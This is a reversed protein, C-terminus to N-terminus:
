TDWKIIEEGLEEVIGRALGSDLGDVTLSYWSVLCKTAIYDKETGGHAVLAEMAKDRAVTCGELCVQNTPSKILEPFRQRVDDWGILDLSLARQLARCTEESGSQQFMGLYLSLELRVLDIAPHGPGSSAYDILYASRDGRVLINRLHVDGHVVAPHGLREFRRLAICRAERARTSFGLCNGTEELRAIAGCVPDAFCEFSTGNSSTRNLNLLKISASAIADILDSPDPPVTSTAPGYLEFRWLDGLREELTPAPTLPRAEDAVLNFVIVGCDGHLHVDPHLHNDSNQVFTRFRKIENMIDDKIGIKAVLPIAGENVQLLVVRATTKGGHLFKISLNVIEPPMVANWPRGKHAAVAMLTAAENSTLEGPLFRGRQVTSLLRSTQTIFALESERIVGDTAISLQNVSVDERRCWALKLRQQIEIATSLLRTGDIRLWMFTSYTAIREFLKLQDEKSPILELISSDIVVACIDRNGSLESWLEDVSAVRVAGLQHQLLLNRNAAQNDDTALLLVTSGHLEYEPLHEISFGAGHRSGSDSTSSAPEDSMAVAVTTTESRGYLLPLADNDFAGSIVSKLSSPADALRAALLRKSAPDLCLISMVAILRRNVDLSNLSAAALASGLDVVFQVQAATTEAGLSSVETLAKRFEQHSVRTLRNILSNASM